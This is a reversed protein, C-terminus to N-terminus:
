KKDKGGNNVIDLLEVDFVLVANPPIPGAGEEGYALKSPITFKYHAGPSMLQLGETWGPIVRNLPFEIPEGRKYSSDFVTGDVLKGEYNVKVTDTPKPKPGSGEKIVEYQLGSATVKVGPKKANEALYAAGKSANEIAAKKQGMEMEQKVQAEYATLAKRMEDESLLSEKKAYADKFGAIFANTDLNPVQAVSSKGTMYGISYAAQAEVTKPKGGDKKCAVLATGTVVILGAAMLQRKM